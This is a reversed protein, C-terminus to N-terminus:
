WYTTVHNAYRHDHDINGVPPRNGYGEHRHRDYYDYYQEGYNPQYIQNSYYGDNYQPQPQYPKQQGKKQQQSHGRGRGGRGGAEGGYFVRSDYKPQKQQKITNESHACNASSSTKQHDSKQVFTYDDIANPDYFQDMGRNSEESINGYSSITSPKVSPDPSPFEMGGVNNYWSSNQEVESSKEMDNVQMQGLASYIDDNQSPRTKSLGFKKDVEGWFDETSEALNNWYHASEVNGPISSGTTQSLNRFFINMIILEVIVM